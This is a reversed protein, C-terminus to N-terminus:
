LQSIGEKLAYRILEAQKHINLKRMINNRHVHITNLSAKLKQAIEKNIFGEAILQLVEKEKGTLEDPNRQRKKSNGEKALFGSVIFKSIKPSLFYRGMYVERIARIVEEIASEKLLYGKAGAKLAKEVFSREDHISLIIIKSKPYIKRLRYTTEIGNIIPMSIDLIYVAASTEKAMRLVEEGNSAESVVKINKVARQIVAKLGERVVAHDDALVVEISM